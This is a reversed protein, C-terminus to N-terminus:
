RTLPEVKHASWHTSMSGDFRCVSHYRACLVFSFTKGLLIGPIRWSRQVQFPPASSQQSEPPLTTVLGSTEM